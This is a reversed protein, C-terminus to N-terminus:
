LRELVLYRNLDGARGDASFRDVERACGALGRVIGDIEGEEFSHCYRLAGTGQWGLLHDGEELAAPDLLGAGAARREAERARRALREDRMFRWFSVVVAGHPLVRGAVAALLRVRLRRTPVHHMFGFCVAGGAAPAGGLPDGGGDLLASLIDAEHVATGPPLGGDAMLAPCNDVAHVEPAPGPLAGELFREFRLNGAAVDVLSRAGAAAMGRELHPLAREWGEWAGRRTESFSRRQSRYFETDMDILERVTSADM